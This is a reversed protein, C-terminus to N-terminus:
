GQRLVLRSTVEFGFDDVRGLGPLPLHVTGIRASGALHIQVPAGAILEIQLVLPLDVDGATAQGSVQWPQATPGTGAFRLDQARHRSILARAAAQMIFNSTRLRDLAISLDLAVGADEVRFSGATVPATVDVDIRGIRDSRLRVDADEISDVLWSGKIM